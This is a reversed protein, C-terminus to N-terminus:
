THDRMHRVSHHSKGSHQMVARFWAIRAGQGYHSCRLRHDALKNGTHWPCAATSGPMILRMPTPCARGTQYSHLILQKKTHQCARQPAHGLQGLCHRNVIRNPTNPHCWHQESNITHVAQESVTLARCLARRAAQKNAMVAVLLTHPEIMNDTQGFWPM